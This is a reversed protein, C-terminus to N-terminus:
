SVVPETNGLRFSVKSYFLSVATLLENVAKCLTTLLNVM